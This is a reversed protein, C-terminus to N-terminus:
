RAPPSAAPRQSTKKPRGLKEAEAVRAGLDKLIKELDQDSPKDKLFSYNAVVTQRHCLLITAQAEPNIEYGKPGAPTDLSLTVQKLDLEPSKALDRLKSAIADKLDTAKALDDTKTELAQRYGGDNLIIVSAGVGVEAHKAIMDDLKKLFDVLPKDLDGADRLFVLVQPNLGHACVPCHFRGAHPGTVSLVEFPGPLEKNAPLGSKGAEQAGASPSRVLLVAALALAHLCRNSMAEDM